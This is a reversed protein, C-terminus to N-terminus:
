IIQVLDEGFFDLAQEVISDDELKFLTNYDVDENVFKYQNNSKINKIYDKKFKNWQNQDLAIFKYDINFVLNLLKEITPLDNNARESMSTYPYVAVINKDSAVVIEGDLLIGAAMGYIPNVSYESVSKWKDKLDNLYNKNCLAFTNNIRTEILDQVTLIKKTDVVQSEEPMEVPINEVISNIEAKSSEEVKKEEVIGANSSEVINIDKKEIKGVNV